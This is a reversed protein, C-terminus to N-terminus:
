EDRGKKYGTLFREVADGWEPIKCGFQESFRDTALCSSAPRLVASSYQAAKVPRIDVTRNVIGLARAREYIRLAFGYWTTEGGNCFHYTGPEGGGPKMVALLARALDRTYTPSGRQDSVVQVTDKTSFLEIMTRPFSRGNLGFLWSTRIIFHRDLSRRVCHEGELKSKGYVNVPNPKDTEKYPVASRGDFVYDTSIHILACGLRRSAHALNEPGRANIRYTEERNAEAKEVDTWAACNVIWDPKQDRFGSIFSNIAGPDAIDVEADSARYSIGSEALAKAVDSGLMGRNGILWVM